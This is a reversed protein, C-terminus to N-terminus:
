ESCISVNGEKSSLLWKLLASHFLRPSAMTPLLFSISAFLDLPGGSGDQAHEEPQYWHM